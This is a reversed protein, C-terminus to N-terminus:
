LPTAGASQQFQPLHPELLVYSFAGKKPSENPEAHRYLLNKDQRTLEICSLVFYIKRVVCNKVKHTGMVWCAQSATTGFGKGSIISGTKAFVLGFREKEIFSYSRKPSTKVFVRDIFEPV